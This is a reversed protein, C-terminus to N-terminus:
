CDNQHGALVAPLGWGTATRRLQTTQIVAGIELPGYIHPFSEDAGPVDDLRWPSTLRDTDIHLLVLDDLDSYFADLIMSVQSARSAHIFGVQALSAGRTSIEYRGDRLADEWDAPLAAHFILVHGSQWCARGSTAHSAAHLEAAPCPGVPILNM